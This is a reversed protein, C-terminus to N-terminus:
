GLGRLWWTSPHVKWQSAFALPTHYERCKFKLYTIFIALMASRLRKRNEPTLVCNALLGAVEDLPRLKYVDLYAENIIDEVDEPQVGRSLVLNRLFPAEEELISGLLPGVTPHSGLSMLDPETENSQNAACM